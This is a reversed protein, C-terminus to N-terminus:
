RCLSRGAKTGHNRDTLPEKQSNILSTEQIKNRNKANQKQGKEKDKKGGKDGM